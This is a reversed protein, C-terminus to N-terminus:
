RGRCQRGCGGCAGTGIRAESWGTLITGDGDGDGDVFDASWRIQGFDVSRSGTSRADPRQRHSRPPEPRSPQSGPHPPPSSTDTRSNTASAPQSVGLEADYGARLGPDSLIRYAGEVARFAVADGGQDPHTLRSRQRFAARLQEDTADRAVGLM